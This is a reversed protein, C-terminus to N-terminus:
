SSQKLKLSDLRRRLTPLLGRAFEQLDTDAGNTAEEAYFAIAGRLEQIQRAVYNDDSYQRMSDPPELSASPWGKEVSLAALRQNEGKGDDLMQKAVAQIAPDKSMSLAVRADAIEQNGAREAKRVFDTDAPFPDAAQSLPAAGLAFITLLLIARM